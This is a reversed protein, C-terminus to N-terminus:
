APVAQEAVVGDLVVRGAENRKWTARLSGEPELTSIERLLMPRNKNALAEPWSHAEVTEPKGGGVPIIEFRRGAAMLRPLDTWSGINLGAIVSGPRLPQNDLAWVQPLVKTMWAFRQTRLARLWYGRLAPLHLLMLVVLWPTGAEACVEEGVLAEVQWTRGAWVILSQWGSDIPLPLPDRFSEGAWRKVWATSEEDLLGRDLRVALIQWAESLKYM